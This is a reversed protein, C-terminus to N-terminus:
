RVCEEEDVITDTIMKLPLRKSRKGSNLHEILMIRLVDRASGCASAMKAINPDTLPFQSLKRRWDKEVVLQYGDWFHEPYLAFIDALCFLFNARMYVAADRYAIRKIGFAEDIVEFFVKINARFTNRGISTMVKELAPALYSVQNTKGPQIRTHLLAVVKVLTAASILEDRKMLQAWSVRGKMVFSTDLCLGYLADMAKNDDKMNRLIVNPSVRSRSCNLKHFMDKEWKETTNFYVMAGLRPAGGLEFVRRAASMRQLGDVVFTDDQLYFVGNREMVDGGRMGLYIDPVGSNSNKLAEVLDSLKSFSFIERQYAPVLIDPISAPDVVGRLIISGGAVEDLAAHTLKISM